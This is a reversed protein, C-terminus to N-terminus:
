QDNRRRKSSWFFMANILHFEAGGQTYTSSQSKLNGVVLKRDPSRWGRFLKNFQNRVDDGPGTYLGKPIFIQLTATGHQKVTPNTGLSTQESLGPNIIWKAWLKTDDLDEDPQNEVVLQLAAIDMNDFFRDNLAKKDMDLLDM